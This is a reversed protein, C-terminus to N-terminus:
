ARRSNRLLMIEELDKSIQFEISEPWVYESSIENQQFAKPNTILYKERIGLSEAAALDTLRDGIMISENIELGHSKILSRIQNPFPKRSRCDDRFRVDDAKPHHPCYSFVLTPLGESDLDCVEEIRARLEKESFLGRAVCTQNSVVFLSSYPFTQSIVRISKYFSKHATQEFISGPGIDPWLVGDADLFVPRHISISSTGM